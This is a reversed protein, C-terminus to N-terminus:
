EGQWIEIEVRRNKERGDILHNNAIPMDYGAGSVVIRTSDIGERRMLGAVAAARRESIDQNEAKPGVNDTHGTVKILASSWSGSLERVITRVADRTADNYGTVNPEAPMGQGSLVIRIYTVGNADKPTSVEANPLKSRLTDAKAVMLKETRKSQRPLSEPQLHPQPEPLAQTTASVISSSSGAVILLTLLAPFINALRMSRSQNNQAIFIPFFARIEM